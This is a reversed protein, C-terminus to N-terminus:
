KNETQKKASPKKFIFFVCVLIGLSIVVNGAVQIVTPIPSVLGGGVIIDVSGGDVYKKAAAFSDCWTYIINKCAQRALTFTTPNNMNIPSTSGGADLMFDNGARIAQETNMYPRGLSFDTVVSGKFGWEGRLIDNLLPDCAGAWVSGICNFASMVANAKGNKIAIEFAKLYTERLTQESLWTFVNDPNIGEESVAFHKVYCILNKNKAGRIIEGGLNGVLVPDESFYEFYRGSYPNRHINLGPAYWGSLGTSNAIEGQVKGMLYATQTNWSCGIICEAPFATFKGREQATADGAHFGAPGDFVTQRPKGISQASTVMMGGRQVMDKLEASTMQDLLKDWNQSNYNDALEMVLAENVKIQIPVEGDLQKKTLATGDAGTVLFLGSDVGTKPIASTDYRNNLAKNAKGIQNNKSALKVQQTPFTDWFNTRSLYKIANPVISGDIPVGMYADEGTFRNVVETQTVPDVSLNITSAVNLKISAKEYPAIHHSDTMLKITYVGRDLEWGSNGNRNKDYCDYSAIDYANFKLTVEESRGPQLTDTKAFAALNVSAKEIEDDYYQPSYYLEVVDKGPHKGTNTVRVSATVVTDKELASNNQTVWTIDWKFTTYSLGYGFPYQVFDEYVDFYGEEFATEYWKYGIYIDEAYNIEGFTGSSPFTNANTPNHERTSYAYTDSLKGSPSIKITETKGGKVVEKYGKMLRPIALTGSQGTFGVYMAADIKENDLFGAEIREGTNLLVIVKRFKASCVKEIMGEEETSLQLYTRGRDEKGNAKYQVLPLELSESGGRSIVIVATSSFKKANEMLTNTYVSADPQIIKAIAREANASETSFNKYLDILESNCEFGEAKFADILTKKYQSPNAGGGGDNLVTGSSGGGSHIFGADSSGYGFLNVTREGADLPLAKNDNKMLVISDEEIYQVAEDGSALALTAAESNYDAEYKGYISMLFPKWLGSTVNAAILAAILVLTVIMLPWKKLIAKM